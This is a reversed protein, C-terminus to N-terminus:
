FPSAGRISTLAYGGSSRKRFMMECVGEELRPLGETNVYSKNWHLEVSAREGEANVSDVRLDMTIQRNRLFFQRVKDRFVDFNPYESQDVGAFFDETRAREYSAGLDRVAARADGSAGGGESLHGCGSLLVLM